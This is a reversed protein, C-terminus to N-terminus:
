AEGREPPIHLWNLDARLQLLYAKEEDDTAGVARGNLYSQVCAIADNHMDLCPDGTPKPIETLLSLAAWDWLTREPTRTRCFFSM